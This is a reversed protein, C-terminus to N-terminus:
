FIIHYRSVIRVQGTESDELSNSNLTEAATSSPEGVDEAEM